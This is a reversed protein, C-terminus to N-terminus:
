PKVIKKLLNESAAIGADSLQWIGRPSNNLYGKKLLENRAWQVMNNWKPRLGDNTPIDRESVSLEFEDALPGYTLSSKVQHKPKSYILLLLAEEIESYQPFGQRM